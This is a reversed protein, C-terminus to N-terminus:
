ATNNQSTSLYNLTTYHKSDMHRILDIKRQFTRSCKNCSFLNSDLISAVTLSLIQLSVSHKAAFKVNTLNKVQIYILINKM